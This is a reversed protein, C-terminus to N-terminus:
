VADQKLAYESIWKIDDVLLLDSPLDDRYEKKVNEVFSKIRSKLSSTLSGGDKFLRDLRGRLMEFIRELQGFEPMIPPLLAPPLYRLVPSQQQQQKSQQQQQKQQQLQRVQSLRLQALQSANRPGAVIAKPAGGGSFIGFIGGSLTQFIGGKSIEDKMKRLNSILEDSPADRSESEKKELMEIYHKYVPTMSNGQITKNDSNLLNSIEGVCYITPFYGM